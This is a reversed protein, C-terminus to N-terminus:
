YIQSEFLGVTVWKKEQGFHAFELPIDSALSFIAQRERIGDKVTFILIAFEKRLTPFHLTLPFCSAQSAEQTVNEKGWM